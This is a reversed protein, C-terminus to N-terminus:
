NIKVGSIHLRRGKLNGELVWDRTNWMAEQLGKIFHAGYEAKWDVERAMCVARLFDLLRLTTDARVVDSSVYHLFVTGNGKIVAASRSKESPKTQDYVLEFYRRPTMDPELTHIKSISPNIVIRKKLRKEIKRVHRSSWLSEMYGVESPTPCKWESCKTDTFSKKEMQETESTSDSRGVASNSVIYQAFSDSVIMLREINFTTLSVKRLSMYSSFCALASMPLAVMLMRSPTMNILRSVAVAAGTGVLSACIAQSAAKGTVDGLNDGVCFSKHISARSASGAIFAINKGINAISAIPLFWQPKAPTLCEIATAVQLACMSQFILRKSESDFRKGIRSAFFLGGLQGVGNKVVWNLAAAVPITGKKLGVAHLLAQVSISGAITGTVQQLFFFRAYSSYSKSVSFPYEDPLLTRRMRDVINIPSLYHQFVNRSLEEYVPAGASIADAADIPSGVSLRLMVERGQWWERMVQTMCVNPGRMSMEWDNEMIRGNEESESLKSWKSTMSKSFSKKWAAVLIGRANEIFSLTQNGLIRLM